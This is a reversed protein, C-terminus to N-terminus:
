DRYAKSPFTPTTVPLRNGVPISDDDQGELTILGNEILDWISSWVSEKDPDDFNDCKVVWNSIRSHYEFPADDTTRILTLKDGAKYSAGSMANLHQRIVYVDGPQPIHSKRM